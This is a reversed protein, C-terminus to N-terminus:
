QTMRLHSAMYSELTHLAQGFSISNITIPQGQLWLYAGMESQAHQNLQLDSLCVPIFGRVMTRM